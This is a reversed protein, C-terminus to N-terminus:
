IEIHNVTELAPLKLKQQELDFYSRRLYQLQLQVRSQWLWNM